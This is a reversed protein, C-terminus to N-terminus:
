PYVWISEGLDIQNFVAVADANWIRLCGHSANYTPVEPYGHIAYGRVFYNSMFMGKANTGPAKSYFHYHGLVTPTSPKGSSTPYVGVPRGNDALVVVQRSLDAEVHKGANPYRLRFAGRGAFVMTYIERSATYVRAMNNVKRFALLERGFKSTIAPGNGAPYGLARMGQKLLVVAMGKGPSVAAAGAKAAFLAQEPTADHRAYIAYTVARRTKFRVHFIGEGAGKRIKTHVLTPKRGPTSIRVRVTQGALYPRVHGTVTVNDGTLVYQRGRATLGGEVELRLRGSKPAPAPAPQPTPQPPPVPSPPPGDALAPAAAFAMAAGLTTVLAARHM